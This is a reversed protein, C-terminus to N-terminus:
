SFFFIMRNFIRNQYGSIWIDSGVSVFSALWVLQLKETHFEFTELNLARTARIRVLLAQIRQEGQAPLVPECCCTILVKFGETSCCGWDGAFWYVWAALAASMRRRSDPPVKKGTIGSEQIHFERWDIPILILQSRRLDFSVFSMTVSQKPSKLSTGQDPRVASMLMNAFAHFCDYRNQFTSPTCISETQISVLCSILLDITM